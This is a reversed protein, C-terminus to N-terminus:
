CSNDTSHKPLSLPIQIWTGLPSLRTSMGVSSNRIYAWVTLTNIRLILLFDVRTTLAQKSISVPIAGAVALNLAKHEVLHAIRYHLGLGNSHQSKNEFFLDSM